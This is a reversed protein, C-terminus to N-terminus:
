EVNGVVLSCEEYFNLQVLAKLTTYVETFHHHINMTLVSSTLSCVDSISVRRFLGKFVSYSYSKKGAKIDFRKGCM